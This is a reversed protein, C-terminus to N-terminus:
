KWAWTILAFRHICSPLVATVRRTSSHINLIHSRLAWNVHLYLFWANPPSRIKRRFPPDKRPPWIQVYGSRIWDIIEVMDSAPRVHSSEAPRQRQQLWNDHLTVSAPHSNSFRFHPSWLRWLRHSPMIRYSELIPDAITACVFRCWNWM